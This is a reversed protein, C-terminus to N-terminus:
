HPLTPPRPAARVDSSRRPQRWRGACTTQRWSQVVASGDATEGRREAVRSSGLTRTRERLLTQTHSHLTTRRPTTQHPTTHHASTDIQFVKASGGHSRAPGNRFRVSVTALSELSRRASKAPGERCSRLGKAFRDGQSFQIDRETAIQLYM